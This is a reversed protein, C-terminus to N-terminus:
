GFFHTQMDCLLHNSKHPNKYIKTSKKKQKTVKGFIKQNIIKKIIIIELVKESNEWKKEESFWGFVFAM